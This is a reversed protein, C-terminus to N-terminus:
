VRLQWKHSRTGQGPISGPERSQSHPTKALPGGPFDRTIINRSDKRM